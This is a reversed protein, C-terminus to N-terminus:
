EDGIGVAFTPASMVETPPDAVEDRTVTNKWQVKVVLRLDKASTITLAAVYDITSAPLTTAMEAEIKGAGVIAADFTLRVGSYTLDVYDTLSAEEIIQSRNIIKVAKPATEAFVSTLTGDASILSVDNLTYTQSRPEVNGTADAPTEFVGYMVVTLKETLALDTSGCGTLVSLLAYLGLIKQFLAM